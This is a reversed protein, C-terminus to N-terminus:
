ISSQSGAYEGMTYIFKYLDLNNMGSKIQKIFELGESTLHEKNKILSVVKCFDLFDFNKNGILTHNSFLPVIISEIDSFNYILLDIASKNNNIIFTGSGLYKVINNM